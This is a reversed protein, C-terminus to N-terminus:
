RIEAEASKGGVPWHELLAAGIREALIRNGEHEVHCADVYITEEVDEFFRSGDVFPLGEETMKAGVMRLLPYGRRVGELWVKSTAGVEKEEPTIPKAGPDWLTPQLVHLFVIERAECIDHMLRASEAWVAVSEALPERADRNWDPGNTVFEAKKAVYQEYTKQAHVSEQRLEDLETLTWHGFVSSSLLAPWALARECVSRMRTRVEHANFLVGLAQADPGGTRVLHGWHAASPYAPHADYVEVNQNALAVENFGDILLVVEPEFGMSLLYTFMHLQQPQKYGGRGFMLYRIEEDAFRPDRQLVATLPKTGYQCFMQAVSGGVILIELKGAHRKTRLARVEVNMLDLGGAFDYGTFPHIVREKRRQVMDEDTVEGKLRPVFADVNALATEITERTEAADYPEGRAALVGRWAAELGLLAVPWIVIQAVLIRAWRRRRRPADPTPVTM